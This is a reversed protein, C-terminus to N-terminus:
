VLVPISLNSIYNALDKITYPIVILTISNEICYQEKDKDRQQAAIFHERTKHFYNPYTYHQKGHYEFAIKHEKNYGDFQYRKNNYYFTTKRLILKLKNELIDKCLLETKFSSCIPCWTGSQINQWKALWEHGKECQWLLNTKANKYETSLLCGKNNKATLQLVTLKPKCTKSCTPCWSNSGRIHTWSALWTHGVECEWSLKNYCNIYQISLCKGRKSIAFTKLTNIDPKSKGACTPCWSKNSKIDNVTAYWQHGVECEWILKEKYSNYIVSILKGKRSIALTQLEPLTITKKTYM